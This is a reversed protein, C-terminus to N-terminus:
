SKGGDEAMDQRPRRPLRRARVERRDLAAKGGLFVTLIGAEAETPKVTARKGLIRSCFTPISAAMPPLCAPRRPPKRWVRSTTGVMIKAHQGMGLERICKLKEDSLGLSDLGEVERLCTFPLALIVADFTRQQKAGGPADFSLAIQGNQDNIGTLAFGWNMEIKDKLAAVLGKDILTSSGGEIRWAEDSDGFIQFDENLKTGIVNVLNLSSQHETELGCEGVYAVELLDIVWDDKTKGRFQELYHKLSTNTSSALM